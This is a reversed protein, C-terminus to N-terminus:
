EKREISAKSSFGEPYRKKLKEINKEALENISMDRGSTYLAIYWLVDGVEEDMKYYDPEHGQFLQKKLQDIVEGSEGCLGMAACAIKLDNDEESNTRMALQQYENLDFM